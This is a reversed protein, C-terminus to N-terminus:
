TSCRRAPPSSSPTARAAPSTSCRRTPRARTRRSPWPCPATTGRRGSAAPRSPPRSRRPRAPSRRCAPSSSSSGKSCRTPTTWRWRHGTPSPWPSPLTRPRPSGGADQVRVTVPPAGAQAPAPTWQLLGTVPDITMGAPATALSFTLVDGPDPDTAEVDYLYIRGATAVTVPLSTIAPPRNIPAVVPVEVTYSQTAFAGAADHVRVSVPSAGGQDNAPTWEILGSAPDIGMGGPAADLAYTLVDGPDPDTAEVDYLYPSAPTGATVPTSTIAPGRNPLTVTIAFTQTDYAGAADTVRVTVQQTGAQEATPTWLILGGAPEITMGLSAAALSYTLVDGPDPDTAEVDYQYLTGAIAEGGPTSTIVPPHNLPAVDVTATDPTGFLLGDGVILQAVYLGALDPIFSALERDADTLAATSGPPQFSFSWAYFLPDLDVDFSGSGDLTVTDGVTATQDPGADAVPRSNETSITVTDPASGVTGDDVVLEASYTGPLDVAFTPMVATPDSLTASSGAPPTLRWAFTLPDGDADHSTSGDLSVTDGVLVTQDPGAGAVPPSNETTVTVTDPASDVTGDNVVLEASYSGPLDVAFTPMVATPDSLTSSSEAPPTLLWDFTLPDGDADSSGSGDLAVTGGLAVTQDPGADAVPPTNETTITVTGPASDDTGDNVVLEASYSGPLDVSFTPM